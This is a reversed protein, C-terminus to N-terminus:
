DHLSSSLSDWRGSLKHMLRVFRVLRLTKNSTMKRQRRIETGNSTYHITYQDRVLLDAVFQSAVILHTSSLSFLYLAVNPSLAHLVCRAGADSVARQRAWAM